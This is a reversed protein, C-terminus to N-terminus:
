LKENLASALYFIIYLIKYNKYIYEKDYIEKGLPPNTFIGDIEFKLYIYNGKIAMEFKQTNYIDILLQKIYSDFLYEFSHSSSSYIDFMSDLENIYIQNFNDTLFKKQENSKIVQNIPPNFTDHFKKTIKEKQILYLETNFCNSLKIKAFVGNFIELHIFHRHYRHSKYLYETLIKSIEIEYFNYIGKICNSSCFNNYYDFNIQNFDEQKISNNPFYELKPSFSKILKNIVNSKYITDYNVLETRKTFAIYIPFAIAIIFCLIFIDKSTEEGFYNRGYIISLVGLSLAILDVIFILIKNTKRENIAKKRQEEIENFYNQNENLFKNYFKDFDEEIKM